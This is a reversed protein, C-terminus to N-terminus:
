AVRGVRYGYIITYFGADILRLVSSGSDKTDTFDNAKWWLPLKTGMDHKKKFTHLGHSPMKNQTYWSPINMTEVTRHGKHTHTHTHTHQPTNHQVPLEKGSTAFRTAAITHSDHRYLRASPRNKPAKVFSRLAVTLKTMDTRGDTRM